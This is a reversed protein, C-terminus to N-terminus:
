LTIRKDNKYIFYGSRDASMKVVEPLNENIEYKYIAPGNELIYKKVNQREKIYFFIGSCYNNNLIPLTFKGLALEIVGKLFDYGTSLQVLDSGIFDGGMRAGIENLYIKDNSTIILESHSAGNKIKLSNLGKTVIEKIRGFIVDNEFVSPQHHELEVFHPYGTTVKDTFALIYHKGRWSIAEVSIEVGEIFEEVIAKGAFSEQLAYKISEALVTRDKIFSVGRSGSRDIPKAILPFNFSELKHIDNERNIEIFNPILIGSKNFANRMAYKNTSLLSSQMSNGILDLKSAIYNVTPVAIDSAITVIGNIKEKKCIELISEKEVISIPYFKNCIDKCVAGEEWAFCITYIGLEKAKEVLPLQLYSAGIISLKLM